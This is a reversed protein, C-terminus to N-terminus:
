IATIFTYMPLAVSLVIFLVLVGIIMLLLPELLSIISQISRSFKEEYYNALRDFTSDLNGTEEGIATMHAMISPFLEEDRIAQSLTFGKIVKDEMRKTAESYTTGVLIQKTSRLAELIGVGSKMLAGIAWCFRYLNLSHYVGKIVPITSFARYMLGKGSPSFKMFLGFLILGGIGGGLVLPNGLLQSLSVTFKTIAPLEMGAQEFVGVFRPVVFTLMFGMVGIAAVILIIPYAMAGKIQSLIANERKYQEAILKLSESLTGSEEGVKIMNIVLPSFHEPFQSLGDGITQGEQLSRQVEALVKKLAPNKADEQLIELSHYASVGAEIMFHMSDFLFNKEQLSINKKAFLGGGKDSVRKEVSVVFLGEKQLLGKVEDEDLARKEGSKPEGSATVARYSYVPM